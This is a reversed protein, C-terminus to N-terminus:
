TILYDKNLCVNKQPPSGNDTTANDYEPARKVKVDIYKAPYGVEKAAKQTLYKARGRGTTFIISETRYLITKYASYKVANM